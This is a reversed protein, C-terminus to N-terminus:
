SFVGRGRPKIDAVLEGVTIKELGKSKILDKCYAKLDDRWGCDVLKKRLLEKLREKEGSAVLKQSIQARVHAEKVKADSEADM